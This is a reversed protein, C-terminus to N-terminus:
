GFFDFVGTFNLGGARAESVPLEREFGGGL